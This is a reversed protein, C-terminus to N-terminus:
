GSADLLAALQSSLYRGRGYGRSVILAVAESALRRDLDDAAVCLAQLDVSDQPRADGTSLLKLAILHGICAVPVTLGPLLETPIAASVTETEIGSSALLLDVVPVSGRESRALRVAALRGAADHELLTHVVWGRRRLSAVIAEARGDDPVSLALDVDRTFRPETWVSVALGGVLAFEVDLERLDAGIRRLLEELDNM